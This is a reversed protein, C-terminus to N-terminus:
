PKVKMKNLYRNEFVLDLSIRAGVYFSKGEDHVNQGSIRGTM